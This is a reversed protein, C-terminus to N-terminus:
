GSEPSTTDSRRHHGRQALAAEVEAAPRTTRGVRRKAQDASGPTANNGTKGSGFPRPYPRLNRRQKPDAHAATTLDVLDALVLSERSM